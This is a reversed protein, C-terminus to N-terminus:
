KPDEPGLNCFVNPTVSLARGIMQALVHVTTAKFSGPQASITEGESNRGKHQTQAGADACIPM